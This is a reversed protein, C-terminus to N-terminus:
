DFRLQLCPRPRGHLPPKSTLRHLPLLPQSSHLSSSGSSPLLSPSLVALLEDDQRRQKMMAICVDTRSSAYIGIAEVKTDQHSLRERASWGVAMGGEKCANERSGVEVILVADGYHAPVVRPFLFRRTTM